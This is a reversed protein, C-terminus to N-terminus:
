VLKISPHLMQINVHKHICCLSAREQVENKLIESWLCFKGGAITGICFWAGAWVHM